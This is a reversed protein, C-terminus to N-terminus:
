YARVPEVFIEQRPTTVVLQAGTAPDSWRVTDVFEQRSRRMWGGDPLVVFGDEFAGREETETAARVWRVPAESSRAPASMRDPEPVSFQWLVMVAAASALLVLARASQPFSRPRPPALRRATASELEPPVPAPAFARLRAELAALEPPLAPTM